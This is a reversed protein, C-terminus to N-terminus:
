GNEREKEIQEIDVALKRLTEPSLDIVAQLHGKRKLTLTAHKKDSEVTINDPNHRTTM